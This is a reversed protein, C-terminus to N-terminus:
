ATAMKTVTVVQRGRQGRRHSFWRDPRCRTCESRDVLTAGAEFAASRVLAPLSLARTGWSTVAEVGDGFRARLPDLDAAGFEYCCPHICPGLLVTVAGSGLRRMAAVTAQVVGDAAGRWGAHAVGIVGRAGVMALPACDGVWVSLVCGSRDSVAADAVAGDHHGPADVQVVTTGHVEDLQTWAGPTFAQRRHALAVPHSELHFDGDRVTSWRVHVTERGGGVVFTSPSIPTM